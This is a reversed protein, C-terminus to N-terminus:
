VVSKRDAGTSSNYTIKMVLDSSFTGLGTIRSIFTGNRTQNVDGDDRMEYRYGDQSGNAQLLLAVNAGTAATYAKLTAQVSQTNGQANAFYCRAAGGFDVTTSLAGSQTMYSTPAGAWNAGGAVANLLTGSTESFNFTTM